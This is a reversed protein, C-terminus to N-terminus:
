PTPDHFAMLFSQFIKLLLIEKVTPLPRFTLNQFSLHHPSSDNHIVKGEKNAKAMEFFCYTVSTHFEKTPPPFNPVIEKPVKLSSPTYPHLDPLQIAKVGLCSSKMKQQSNFKSGGVGGGLAMGSPGLRLPMPSTHIEQM